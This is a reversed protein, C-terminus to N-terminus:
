VFRLGKTAFLAVRGSIAGALLSLGTNVGSLALYSVVDASLSGTWAAKAADLLGNVALDVGTYTVVALGLSIMVQRALPGALMMMLASFSM